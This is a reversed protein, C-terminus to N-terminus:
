WQSKDTTPVDAEVVAVHAIDAAAPVGPRTRSPRRGVSVGQEHIRSVHERRVVVAATPVTVGEAAKGAGFLRVTMVSVEGATEAIDTRSLLAQSLRIM